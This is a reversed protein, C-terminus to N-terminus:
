APASNRKGRCPTSLAPTGTPASSAHGESTVWGWSAAGNCSPTLCARVIQNSSGNARSIHPHRRGDSARQYGETRHGNSPVGGPAGDTGTAPAQDDGGERDEGHRGGGRATARVTGVTRFGRRGRRRRTVGRGRRGHAGGVVTAGGVVAAGVVAAGVVTAGGVVAAGVVVCAVSGGTVAGGPGCFM